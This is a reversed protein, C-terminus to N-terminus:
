ADSSGGGGGSGMSPSKGGGGEGKGGMDPGGGAGERKGSGDGGGGKGGGKDKGKAKEKLKDVGSDLSSKMNEAMRQMNLAVGSVDIGGTIDATFAYLGEMFFRVIYTFIMLMLCGVWMNAVDKVMDVTFFIAGYSEHGLGFLYSILVYGISTLCGGPNEDPIRIEYTSRFESGNTFDHRKFNCTGYLVNDYLTLIIAIFCALVMPQLACSLTIKLWSDFYSKTREFLALPVFIPSLYVLVHLTVLCVTYLSVFGLILSLVIIMYYVLSLFFVFQGGLFLLFILVFLGVQEAASGIDDVDGDREPRPGDNLPHTVPVQTWNQQFQWKETFGVGFIKKILFYAGLKCDIRDWLGYYGYGVPYRSNDFECLGRDNNAAAFTIAALDSTMQTLIPLTWKITGNETKKIGDQFYAPGWGVAFYGVLIMKMIFKVVSELSFESQNLLIKMGFGITYLILLARVSVKLAEQFVSFNALFSMNVNAQLNNSVICGPQPDFFNQRLTDHLCQVAPGSFSFMSQSIRVTHSSCSPAVINCVEPDANLQAIANTAQENNNSQVFQIQIPGGLITTDPNVVNSYTKCKIPTYGIPTPMTLCLKVSCLGGVGFPCSPDRWEAKLILSAFVPDQLFEPNGSLNRFAVTQNPSLSYPGYSPHPGPGTPAPTSVAIDLKPTVEGGADADSSTCNTLSIRNLMEGYISNDRLDIMASSLVVDCQSSAFANSSLLLLLILIKQFLRLM